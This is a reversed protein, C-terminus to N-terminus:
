NFPNSGCTVFALWFGLFLRQLASNTATPATVCIPSAFAVRRHAYILMLTQDSTRMFTEGNRVNKYCVEKEKCEVEYKKLSNKAELDSEFQSCNVGLIPTCSYCRINTAFGDSFLLAVLVLLFLRNAMTSLKCAQKSTPPVERCSSVSRGSCSSLLSKLKVVYGSPLREHEGM